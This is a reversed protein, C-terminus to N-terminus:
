ESERRIIALRGAIPEALLTAHAILATGRVGGDAVLILHGPSFLARSAFAAYNAYLVARGSASLKRTLDDASVVSRQMTRQSLVVEVAEASMGPLTALVERPAINLNVAISGRTTLVRALRVALASDVGPIETVDYIRARRRATLISEAVSQRVGINLILREITPGDARNVDVKGSPDELK